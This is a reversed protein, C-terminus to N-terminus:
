KKTDGNEELLMRLEESCGASEFQQRLRGYLRRLKGHAQFRNLGLKKGAETVSYGEVHCLTLLLREDAKLQVGCGLLERLPTANTLEPDPGFFQDHLAKMIREREKEEAISQSTGKVSLKLHGHEDFSQKRYQAKGCHPIEGLIRDAMVEIQGLHFQQFRDLALNTAELYSYRELCMLRYLLLWIGGLKRLWLPPRVRGFRERAFDELLNYVVSSFYTKLRATGRYNRLLEWEDKELRNMVFLAAEESLPEGSFRRRALRDILEWHDLVWNRLFHQDYRQDATM